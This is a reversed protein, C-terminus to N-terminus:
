IGTPYFKQMHNETEFLPKWSSKNTLDFNM